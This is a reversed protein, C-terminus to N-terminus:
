GGCAEATVTVGAWLYPDPFEGNVRLRHIMQLQSTRLASAERKGQALSKFVERMLDATQEDPLQWLAAMVKKAGALHFAQRLSAVAQGRSAAGIGTECGSLIVLRTGRMDQGLIELGTLIGDEATRSSTRNAGALIIGCRLMVSKERVNQPILPLPMEESAIYVGRSWLPSRSEESPAGPVCFAHTSLLLYEPSRTRLKYTKECAASDTYVVPERGTLQKFYKKASRAERVTGPLPQWLGTLRWEGRDTSKGAMLSVPGYDPNAFIMPPNSKGGRRTVVLRKGSTVYRVSRREVLFEDKGVPIAEYPVRWLESDSSIVLSASQPIHNRIPDWLRSRLAAGTRLIADRRGRTGVEVTKTIQQLFAQISRDLANASGLDVYQVRREDAAPIIWAGYREEAWQNEGPSAHWRFPRFRAIEILVESSNLKGRVEDIRSWASEPWYFLSALETLCREEEKRLRGARSALGVASSGRLTTIEIASLEARIRRLNENIRRTEPSSDQTIGAANRSALIAAVGKSNIVYEATAEVVKDEDSCLVLSLALDSLQRDTAVALARQSSWSLGKSRTTIVEMARERSMTMLECAERIRGQRVRLFAMQAKLRVFPAPHDFESQINLAQQFTQESDSLKGNYLQCLALGTLAESRLTPSYKRYIKLLQRAHKEAQDVVGLHLEAYMLPGLAEALTPHDGSHCSRMCALAKRLLQVAQQTQGCKQSLIEGRMCNIRSALTKARNGGWRRVIEASLRRYSEEAQTYEGQCRLLGADVIRVQYHLGSDRKVGGSDRVENLLTRAEALENMSLYNGAMLVKATLAENSAVGCRDIEAALHDEMLAQAKSYEGLAKWSQATRVRLEQTVEHTDGYERRSIELADKYTEMAQWFKGGYWQDRGEFLMERCTVRAASRAFPDVCHSPEVAPKCGGMTAVLLTVLQLVSWFDPLM